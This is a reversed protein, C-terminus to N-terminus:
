RPAVVFGIGGIPRAATEEAGDERAAARLSIIGGAAPAAVSFIDITAEAGPELRLRAVDAPSTRLVFGPPMRGADLSLIWAVDEPNAVTIRFPEAAGPEIPQLNRVAANNDFPVWRACPVPRGADVPELVPDDDCSVTVLLAQGDQAPTWAFPGIVSTEGPGPIAADIAGCPTWGDPWACVLGPAAHYARVTMVGAPAPARGRNGVRAYLLSPVGARPPEHDAPGARDQEEPDAYPQRRAWIAAGEWFDDRWLRADFADTADLSGYGGRREDDVFLDVEPPAFGPLRRRAFTDLMVKRATGGGHRWPAMADAAGLLAMGMQGLTPRTPAERHALLHIRIVWDRAMARTARDTSDGGLKHYIEFMLACWAQGRAHGGASGYEPGDFTWEVDYRRGPWFADTANADWSLVRGRTQTPNAHDDFYVAALFDGFGEGIGTEFGRFGPALADQIAHGLEHLVVHADSADPIGGEGFVLAKSLSMYASNDQGDRAVPDANIPGPLIPGLELTRELFSMFSDIHYYVMVALFLRSFADAEKPPIRFDGSASEPAPFHPPEIDEIRVYRGRLLVPATASAPPDLRELVVDRLEARLVAAPTNRSIGPDGSTVIPNPFFVWAPCSRYHALDVIEVIAGSTADVYFRANLRLGAPSRAEVPVAWAILHDGPVSEGPQAVGALITLPGEHEPVPEDDHAHDAAGMEHVLLTPAIVRADTCNRTRLASEVLSAAEQGDIRVAGPDLDDPLGRKLNSFVSQVQGDAFANVVIEADEVPLSKYVQTRRVSVVPDGAGAVAAKAATGARQLEVQPTLGLLAANGAILRDALAEADFHKAAGSFRARPDVWARVVGHEDKEVLHRREDITDM